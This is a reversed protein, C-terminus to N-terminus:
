SRRNVASMSFLFSPRCSISKNLFSIRKRLNAIDEKEVSGRARSRRNMGEGGGEEGVSQM